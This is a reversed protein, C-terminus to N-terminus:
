AGEGQAEDGAAAEAEKAKKAAELRAAREHRWEITHTKALATSVAAADTTVASRKARIATDTLAAKKWDALVAATAEVALDRKHDNHPRIHFRGLEAGIVTAHVAAGVAEAFDVLASVKAIAAAKVTANTAMDVKVQARAIAAGFQAAAFAQAEAAFDVQEHPSCHAIRWKGDHVEAYTGGAIDEPTMGPDLPEYIIGAEESYIPGHAKGRPTDYSSAASLHFEGHAWSDRVAFYAKGNLYVVADDLFEDVPHHNIRHRNM